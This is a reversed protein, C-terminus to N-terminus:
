KSVKADRADYTTVGERANLAKGYIPPLGMKERQADRAKCDALVARAALKTNQNKSQELRRLERLKDDLTSM